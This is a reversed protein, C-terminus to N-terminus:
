PLPRDLAFLEADPHSRGRCLELLIGSALVGFTIGNGGYALSAHAGPLDPVPGIFPMGDPTEAFVGAWACDPVLELGPFLARASAVLSLAKSGILADRRAPDSFPEDAGGVIVRGDALSRCYLYPRATEWIIASGPWPSALGTPATALAYTSHLSVRQAPLAPAFEYGTAFIVRRARVTANGATTLVLEGNSRAVSRVESRPGTRIRAGSTAADELLRLTLAYADIEGGVASLIAGPRDIGFRHQLDSRELLEVAIGLGARAASERRLAALDARGAALYLSERRAYGARDGLEGLVEELEAFAEVCRLYARDARAQGVMRRLRTLPTDLEYQLLATSAATSGLAAERRDLVLTDFGARALRWATLAGTIGCGVVVVDARASGDLDPWAAQEGAQLV